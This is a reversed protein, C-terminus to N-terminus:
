NVIQTWLVVNEGTKISTSKKLGPFYAIMNMYTNPTYIKGKNGLNKRQIKSSIRCYSVKYKTKM